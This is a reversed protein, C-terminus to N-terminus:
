GLARDAALRSAHRLREARDARQESTSRTDLCPSWGDLHLASREAYGDRIEAAANYIMNRLVDSLDASM